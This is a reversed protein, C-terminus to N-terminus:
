RDDEDREMPQDDSLVSGLSKSRVSRSLEPTNTDRRVPQLPAPEDMTLLAPVSSSRRQMQRRVAPTRGCVPGRKM